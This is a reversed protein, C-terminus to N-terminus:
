AASRERVEDMDLARVQTILSELAQESIAVAKETM